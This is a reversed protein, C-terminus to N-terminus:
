RIAGPRRTTALRRASSFSAMFAARGPPARTNTAASRGPAMTASTSSRSGPVGARSPSQGSARAAAM